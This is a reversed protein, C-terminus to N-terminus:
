RAKELPRVPLGRRIRLARRAANNLRHRRAKQEPTEAAIRDRRQQNQRDRHAAQWAKDTARRRAKRAPDLNMTAIRDRNAKYWAKLYKKRDTKSTKMAFSQRM